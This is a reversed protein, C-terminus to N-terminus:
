HPTFSSKQINGGHAEEDILRVLTIVVCYSVFVGCLSVVAGTTAIPSM